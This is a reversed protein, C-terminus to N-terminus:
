RGDKPKWVLFHLNFATKSLAPSGTAFFQMCSYENMTWQDCSLSPNGTSSPFNRAGRLKRYIPFVSLMVHYDYYGSAITGPKRTLSPSLQTRKRASAEGFDRLKARWQSSFGTTSNSRCWDGVVGRLWSAIVNATHPPLIIFSFGIRKISPCWISLISGITRVRM